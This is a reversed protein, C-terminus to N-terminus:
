PSRWLALSTHTHTRTRACMPRQTVHGQLKRPLHTSSRSPNLVLALPQATLQPTQSTGSPGPFLQQPQKPNLAVAAPDTSVEGAQSELPRGSDQGAM